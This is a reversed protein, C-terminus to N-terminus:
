GEAMLGNAQSWADPVGSDGPDAPDHQWSVLFESGIVEPSSGGPVVWGVMCFDEKSMQKHLIEVYYRQGQKLTVKAVQESFLPKGGQNAGRTWRAQGSHQDARAILKKGQWSESDSLWLEATDNAIINFTYEGSAPPKILGRVRSGYDNGNGVPIELRTLYRVEDPHQPFGASRTLDFVYQGPINRWVEFRVLGQRNEADAKLPNGNTLCELWNPIGDGDPDGFPGSPGDGCDLDIGWRQQWEARPGSAQRGAVAPAPGAMNSAPIAQKAVLVTRLGLADRTALEWHVESNGRGMTRFEFRRAVGQVLKVRGAGTNPNGNRQILRWEGTVDDLLLLEADDSGRIDITYGGTQPPVLMGRVRVMSATERAPVALKELPLTSGGAPTAQSRWTDFALPASVAAPKEFPWVEAVVGAKTEGGDALAFPAAMWLLSLLAVPMRLLCPTPFKM